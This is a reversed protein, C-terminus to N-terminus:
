ALETDLNVLIRRCHILMAFALIFAPDKVGRLKEYRGLIHEVVYYMAQDAVHSALKCAKLRM